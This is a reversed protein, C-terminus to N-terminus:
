TNPVATSGTIRATNTPSLAITLDPTQTALDHKRNTDCAVLLMTCILFVIVLKKM